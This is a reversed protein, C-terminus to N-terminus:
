KTVAYGCSRIRLGDMCHRMEFVVKKSYVLIYM